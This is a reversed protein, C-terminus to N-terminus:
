YGVAWGYVIFMAAFPLGFLAGTLYGTVARGRRTLKVGGM